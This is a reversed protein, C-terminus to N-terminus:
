LKLILNIYDYKKIPHLFPYEEKLKELIHFTEDDSGTDIIFLEKFETPNTQMKWALARITGEITEEANKVTIVSHLHHPFMKTDQNTKIFFCIIFTLGLGLIIIFATWFLTHIM